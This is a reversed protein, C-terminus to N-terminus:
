VSLELVICNVSFSNLTPCQLYPAAQLLLTDIKAMCQIEM